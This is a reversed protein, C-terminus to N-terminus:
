EKEKLELRRRLNRMAHGAASHDDVPEDTTDDVSPTTDPLQDPGAGDRADYIARAEARAQLSTGEYAPFPVPSVEFLKLEILERLDPIDASEDISWTSKIPTFAFSMKTIDGRKVSQYTNRHDTNLPDMRLEVPLGKDDEALDLTGGSVSALVVDTNHNRLAKIGKSESLTKTFAGPRVVERFMGGVDTEQDFVAAYGRLILADSTEETARVEFEYARHETM